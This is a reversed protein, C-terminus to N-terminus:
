FATAYGTDDSQSEDDSGFLIEDISQSINDETIIPASNFSTPKLEKGIGYEYDVNSRKKICSDYDGIVAVTKSIIFFDNKAAGRMLSVMRESAEEETPYHERLIENNLSVYHDLIYFCSNSDPANLPIFSPNKM